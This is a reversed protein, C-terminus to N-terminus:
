ETPWYIDDILKRVEAGLGADDSHNRALNRVSDAFDGYNEALYNSLGKRDFFMYLYVREQSMDEPLVVFQLRLSRAEALKRPLDDPHVSLVTYRDPNTM